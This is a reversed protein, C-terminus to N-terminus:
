GRAGSLMADNFFVRFEPGWLVAAPMGSRLHTSLASKLIRPWTGLPGFPTQSWDRARMLGAIVGAKPLFEPARYQFTPVYAGVPFDILVMDTRGTTRYYERLKARLRHAEGRVIGDAMPDFNPPRDYVQTGIMYETLNAHSGALAKEATFRLFRILRKSRVLQSSSTLRDLQEQIADFEPVM